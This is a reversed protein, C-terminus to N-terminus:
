KLRIRKILGLLTILDRDSCVTILDEKDWYNKAFPLDLRKYIEKHCRTELTILAFNVEIENKLKHHIKEKQQKFLDLAEQEEKSYTLSEIDLNPFLDQFEKSKFINERLCCEFEMQDWELDTQYDM